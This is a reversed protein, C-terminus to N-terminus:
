AVNLSFQAAAGTLVGPGTGPLFVVVNRSGAPATPAVSVTFRVQEESVITTGTVTIGTGFVATTGPLLYTGNVTITTSFGRFVTTQSLSTITPVPNARVFVDPQFGNADPTVVDTAGTYYTVYRGDRSIAAGSAGQSQGLQQTTSLRTTRDKARDHVFVDFAGNTDNPVLNSAASSFVIFRGDGSMTTRDISGVEGNAEAAGIGGDVRTTLATSRDRLFADDLGNTDNAVLNSAFSRFSVYRGDDSVAGGGSRENAQAGATTVSVRTTIGTSRDRLFVDESSNTDGSVLDSAASTYVVFRADPSMSSEFSGANPDSGGTDVSVRTTTGAQVDRVYVNSFGVNNDNPVMNKAFSDFSVFRGDDSVDPQRSINNAPTLTGAAVSICITTSESGDWLFVDKKGNVDGGVINTAESEFVIYRGNGSIRPEFSDGDAEGNRGASIRRTAGTQLDRRFIDTKGNTDGPM